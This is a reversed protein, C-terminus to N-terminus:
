FNINVLLKFLVRSSSSLSPSYMTRSTESIVVYLIQFYQYYQPMKYCAPAATLKKKHDLDLQCAGCVVLKDQVPDCSLQFSHCLLLMGRIKKTVQTVLRIRSPLNLRLKLLTSINYM